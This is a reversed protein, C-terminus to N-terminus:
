GCVHAIGCHTAAQDEELLDLVRQRERLGLYIIAEQRVPIYPAKATRAAIDDVQARAESNRGPVGYIHVPRGTSRMSNLIM